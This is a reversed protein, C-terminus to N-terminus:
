GAALAAAQALLSNGQAIMNTMQQESTAQNEFAAKNLVDRMQSALDNRQDTLSTIEEEISAYTDPDTSGVARTSAVLTDHSFQGFSAMIQKYTDGLRLLTERNQQMVPSVAQTDLFQSVVRGDQQYDDRLGLVALM